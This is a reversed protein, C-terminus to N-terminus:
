SIRYQFRFLFWTRYIISSVITSILFAIFTTDQFADLLSNYDKRALRIFVSFVLMTAFFILCQQNKTRRWLMTLLIVVSAFVCLPSFFAVFGILGLIIGDLRLMVIGIGVTAFLLYSMLVFYFYLISRIM